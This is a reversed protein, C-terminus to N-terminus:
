PLFPPAFIAMKCAIDKKFPRMPIMENTTPVVLQLSLFLSIELYAPRNTQKDLILDILIISSFILKSWREILENITVCYHGVCAM